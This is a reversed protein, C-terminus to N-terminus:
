QLVGERVTWHSARNFEMREGHPSVGWWRFFAKAQGSSVRQGGALSLSCHVYGGEQSVMFNIGRWEGAITESGPKAENAMAEVLPRRSKLARLKALIDVSM